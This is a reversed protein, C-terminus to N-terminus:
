RVRRGERRSISHAALPWGRETGTVADQGGLGHLPIMDPGSLTCRPIFKSEANVDVIAAAKTKPKGIATAIM